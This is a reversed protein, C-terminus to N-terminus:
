RQTNLPKHKKKNSVGYNSPTVAFYFTLGHHRSFAIPPLVYEKAGSALYRDMFRVREVPSTHGNIELSEHQMSTRNYIQEHFAADSPKSWSYPYQPSRVKVGNDGAAAVIKRSDFQLSTIPGDFRLTDSISGTRLDWVRISKDLSGSVLHYEDFQLTTVPAIHGILTRHAQGTRMDWMRVCGDASGSALAYGWFQLSGVFDSYLDWSGDAYSPTPVSFDSSHSDQSTWPQSFDHMGTDSLRYHQSSLRALSQGKAGMAPRKSRNSLHLPDSGLPPGTHRELDALSPSASLTQSNSQDNMAWVIDM